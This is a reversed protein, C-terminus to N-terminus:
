FAFHIMILGSNYQKGLCRFHEVYVSFCEREDCIQVFWGCFEMLHDPDDEKMALLLIPASLKL